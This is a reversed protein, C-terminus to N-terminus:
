LIEMCHINRLSRGPSTLSTNMIILAGPSNMNSPSLFATTGTRAFALRYELNSYVRIVEEACDEGRLSQPKM